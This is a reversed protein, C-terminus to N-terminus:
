ETRVAARGSKFETPTVGCTKKFVRAFYNPDRYGVMFCVEKINNFPDSLLERAKRMRVGTIYDIFNEGTEQKFLKSLYFPSIKVIEALGELSIDKPYNNEIYDTVVTMLSNARSIKVANIENLKEIVYKKAYSRIEKETDLLFLMKRLEETDAIIETLNSNIVAERVLVLLLEYVRQRFREIPSINIMMWELLEDILSRANKEDGTVISEYLLKEKNLPYVKPHTEKDIDGYSVISGPTLDYKLAIKAQLFSNYIQTASSCVNGIGANINIHMDRLLEEKMETLLRISLLRSGYEDEKRDLLLVMYVDQGIPGVFLTYGKSNLNAKIKETMRRKIISKQMDQVVHEPFGGGLVTIIGCVYAECKINLIDFYKEVMGDEVGGSALLWLLEGELYQTVQKLKLDTEEERKKRERLKNVAAISKELTSKIREASAPKTIYDDAGLSLADKAYNFYHYASILIMRCEPLFGRVNAAAELGNLGPMKIDFFIIDPKSKLAAAIAEKGNSAESIEFVGSFSENIIYKVAEREIMEDDAILLKYM